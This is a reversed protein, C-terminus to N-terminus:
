RKGEMMRAHQKGCQTCINHENLEEGCSVCTPPEEGESFSEIGGIGWPSDEAWDEYRLNAEELNRPGFM